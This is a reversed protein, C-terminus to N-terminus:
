GGFDAVLQQRKTVCLHNRQSFLRLRWERRKPLDARAFGLVWPDFSNPRDPGLQDAGLSSGGHGSLSPLSGMASDCRM